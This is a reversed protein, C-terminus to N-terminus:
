SASKRLHGVPGAASRSIALVLDQAAIAGAANLWLM